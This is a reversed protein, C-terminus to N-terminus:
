QSPEDDVKIRVAYKVQGTEMRRIGKHPNCRWMQKGDKMVVASNAPLGCCDSMAVGVADFNRVQLSCHVHLDIVQMVKDM